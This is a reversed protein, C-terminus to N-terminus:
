SRSKRGKRKKKKKKKKKPLLWVSIVIDHDMSIYFCVRHAEVIARSDMTSEEKIVPAGRTERDGSPGLRRRNM